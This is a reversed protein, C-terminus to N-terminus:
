LEKLWKKVGQKTKQFLGFWVLRDMGEPIKLEEMIGCWKCVRFHQTPNQGIYHNFKHGFYKCLFKM